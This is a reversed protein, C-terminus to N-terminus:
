VIVYKVQFHDQPIEVRRPPEGQRLSGQSQAGFYFSRGTHQPHHHSGPNLYLNTHTRRRYVLPGPGWGYISTSFSYTAKQKERYHVSYEVVRQM